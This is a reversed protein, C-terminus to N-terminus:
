ESGSSGPSGPSSSGSSSDGGDEKEALVEDAEAVGKEALSGRVISPREEVRGEPWCQTCHEAYEVKEQPEEGFEKFRWYDVYPRRWCAGVYHLTKRQGVVVYGKPDEQEEESSLESGSAKEEAERLLEDLELNGGGDPPREEGAEETIGFGDDEEEESRAQSPYTATPPLGGVPM